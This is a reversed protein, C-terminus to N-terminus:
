LLFPFGEKHEKIFIELEQIHINLRFQENLLQQLNIKKDKMNCHRTIPKTYYKGAHLVGKNYAFM